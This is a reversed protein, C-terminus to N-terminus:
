IAARFHFLFLVFSISLFSLWVFSILMKNKVFEELLVIFYLWKFLIDYFFLFLDVVHTSFIRIRTKEHNIHIQKAKRQNEFHSSAIGAPWKENKTWYKVCIFVLIVFYPFFFFFCTCFLVHVNKNNEKNKIGRKSDKKRITKFSNRFHSHKLIQLTLSSLTTDVVPPPWFWSTVLVIKDLLLTNIDIYIAIVSLLFRFFFVFPFIPERSGKWLWHKSMIFIYAKKGREERLLVGVLCVFSVVELSELDDNM